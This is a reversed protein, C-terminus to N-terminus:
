YCGMCCDPSGVLPPHTSASVSLFATCYTQTGSPVMSQISNHNRFRVNHNLRVSEAEVIDRMSSPFCMDFVLCVDPEWHTHSQTDDDPPVLVTVMVSAYGAPPQAHKALTTLLVTLMPCGRALIIHDTTMIAYADDGHEPEPEPKPEPAPVIHENHLRKKITDNLMTMLVLSSERHSERLREETSEATDDTDRNGTRKKKKKKKDANNGGSGDDDDEEEKTKPPRARALTSMDRRMSEVFADDDKNGQHSDDVRLSGPSRSPHLKRQMRSECDLLLKHELAHSSEAPGGGGTKGKGREPGAVPGGDSDAPAPDSLRRQVTSNRNVFRSISKVTKNLASDIESAKAQRKEQKETRLRDQKEQRQRAKNRRAKSGGTTAAGSRPESKAKTAPAGSPTDALPDEKVVDRAPSIDRTNPPMPCRSTDRIVIRKPGDDTMVVLLVDSPDLADACEDWAQAIIADNDPTSPAEKLVGNEGDIRMRYIEKQGPAAQTQPAIRKRPRGAGRAHPPTRLVSGRGVLAPAMDLDAMLPRDTQASKHTHACARAHIRCKKNVFSSVMINTHQRRVYGTRTSKHRPFGIPFSVMFHRHRKGQLPPLEHDTWVAASGHRGSLGSLPHLFPKGVKLFRESKCMCTRVSAGGIPCWPSKVMTGARNPPGLFASSLGTVSM